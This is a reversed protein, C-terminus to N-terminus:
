EAPAEGEVVPAADEVADAVSVDAAKEAVETEAAEKEAAEKEAAKYAENAELGGFWGDSEQKERMWREILLAANASLNRIQQKKSQTLGSGLVTEGSLQELVTILETEENLKKGEADDWATVRILLVSKPSLVLPIGPQALVYAEVSIGLHYFKEGEYRRFREELAADVAETWEEETADRSLPGKVLNPSVVAAHGLKFNGLPEFPEKLESAGDSSCAALGLLLVIMLLPRIM